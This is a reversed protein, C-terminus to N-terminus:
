RGTRKNYHDLFQMAARDLVAQVGVCLLCTPFTGEVHMGHLPAMSCLMGWSPMNFTTAIHVIGEHEFM